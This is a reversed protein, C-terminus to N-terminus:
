NKGIHVHQLRSHSISYSDIKKTASCEDNIVESGKTWNCTTSLFPQQIDFGFVKQGEINIIRIFEIEFSRRITCVSQEIKNGLWCFSFTRCFSVVLVGFFKVFIFIDTQTVAVLGTSCIILSALLIHAILAIGFVRNLKIVQDNIKLHTDVTNKLEKLNYNNILEPVRESLIEYYISINTVMTMYLVDHGIVTLTSNYGCYMVFIYTSTFNEIPDFPWWFDFPYLYLKVGETAYTLVMVIIPSLNFITVLILTSIIFIKSFKVLIKEQGKFLKRERESLQSYIEGFDSIMNKILERFYLATYHKIMSEFAILFCVLSLITSIFDKRTDRNRNIIFTSEQFVTLTAVTLNIISMLNVFSKRQQGIEIGIFSTLTLSIKYFTEM